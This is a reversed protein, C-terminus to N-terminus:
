LAPVGIKGDTNIVIFNMLLSDSPDLLKNALVSFEGFSNFFTLAKGLAITM